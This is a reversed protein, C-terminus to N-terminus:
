YAARGTTQTSSRPPRKDTPPRLLNRSLGPKQDVETLDRTAIIATVTAYPSNPPAAEATSAVLRM